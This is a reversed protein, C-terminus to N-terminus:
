KGAPLKAPPRNGPPPPMEGAPPKRYPLMKELERIRQRAYKCNSTFFPEHKLSAKYLELAKPKDDLNFDYQVATQFRVPKPITPDWMLAREYWLVALYHERFYEKYIEGILFAALAIRTSKPYKRVLRHLLKLAQREEEYNAIAPVRSGKRYLMWARDYLENAEPVIKVPELDKPPLEVSLIYVFTEEPRFRSQVTHIMWAKFEDNKNEYYQALQDMAQRYNQRAMLVNEVLTRQDTNKDVPQPAIAIPEIGSWTFEQAKELNQLEKAAWIRKQEDGINDYFAQLTTLASHYKVRATEAAQVAKKEGPDAANVELVEIKKDWKIRPTDPRTNCGTMVFACALGIIVSNHVPMRM